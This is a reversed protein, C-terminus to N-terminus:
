YEGDCGRVKRSSNGMGALFQARIATVTMPIDAMLANPTGPAEALGPEHAWDLTPCTHM